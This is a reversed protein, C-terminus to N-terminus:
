RRRFMRLLSFNRPAIQSFVSLTQSYQPQLTHSFGRWGVGVPSEHAPPSSFPIGKLLISPNSGKRGRFGRWGVGVPSEHAPPSSFPIGKLLLIRADNLFQVLMGSVRLSGVPDSVLSPTVIGLVVNESPEAFVSEAIVIGDLGVTGLVIATGGLFGAESRGPFPTPDVLGALGINDSTPTSVVTGVPVTVTIDMVKLTVSGNPNSTIGTITGETEAPVPVQAHIFPAFAVLAAIAAFNRLKM